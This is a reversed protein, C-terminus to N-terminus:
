HNKGRGAFFSLAFGLALCAISGAVAFASSFVSGPFIAPISGAVLGVIAGYTAHPVKKLLLRILAAGALLGAVIGLGTPIILPINFDSVSAIVTAYTGIVVLFFSGSIGPIIMAVAGLVGSAFLLAALAPSFEAHVSRSDEPSLFSLAIIAAFAIVAAIVASARPIKKEAPPAAADAASADFLPHVMRRWLMPISGAVIGIFCWATQMPFRDFLFTIVKSFLIIGAGAGLVFPLWFKWESLIHKVRLTILAILREYIGFVVAITGGSVGPIVNAIGFIVGIAALKLAEM